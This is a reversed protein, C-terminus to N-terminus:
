LLTLFMMIMNINQIKNISKIQNSKILEAKFIQSFFRIIKYNPNNLIFIKLVAFDYLDIIKLFYLLILNINSYAYVESDNSQLLIM